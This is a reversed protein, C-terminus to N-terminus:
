GIRELLPDIGLLFDFRTVPHRVGVPFGQDPLYGLVGMGLNDSLQRLTVPNRPRRGQPALRDQQGLYLVLAPVAQVQVAGRFGQADGPFFQDVLQM